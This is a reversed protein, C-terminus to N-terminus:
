HRERNHNSQNSKKENYERKIIEEGSKIFDYAEKKLANQNKLM